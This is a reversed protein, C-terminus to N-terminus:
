AFIPETKRFGFASATGANGAQLLAPLESLPGKPDPGLTKSLAAPIPWRRIQTIRWDRYDTMAVSLDEELKAFPRVEKIGTLKQIGAADASTYLVEWVQGDSNFLSFLRISVISEKGTGHPLHLRPQRQPSGSVRASAAAYTRSVHDAHCRGSPGPACAEQAPWLHRAPCGSGSKGFDIAAAKAAEAPYDYDFSRPGPQSLLISPFLLLLTAPISLHQSSM